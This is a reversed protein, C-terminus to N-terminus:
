CFLFIIDCLHSKESAINSATCNGISNNHNIKSKRFIHRPSFYVKHSLKSIDSLPAILKLYELLDLLERDSTRILSANKFPAIKLGNRPNMVFNRRIDDFMITNQPNYFENFHHWVVQLPKVNVLGYRQSHITIMAKIDFFCVVKYNPNSLVGLGNMKLEIWKTSTASWIIIDYHPYAGTLFEHLYPRMLELVHEAASRHDFLTYDIDLVLLKKGPRPENLIKPFFSKKKAEIKQLNLINHRDKVPGSSSIEEPPLLRAQEEKSLEKFLNQEATGIMVLTRNAPLNVQSILTDDGDTNNPKFKVLIKQKEVLVNTQEELKLKVTFITDEGSCTIPLVKGSWKVFIEILGEDKEEEM